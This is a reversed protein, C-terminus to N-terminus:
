CNISFTWMTSCEKKKHKQLYCLQIYIYIYIYIYIIIAIVKDDHHGYVTYPWRTSLTIVISIEFISRVNLVKAKNNAM